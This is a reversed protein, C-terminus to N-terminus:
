EELARKLAELHGKGYKLDPELHNGEGWENWSKIFIIKHDEDKNKLNSVAKRVVEEFYQPKSDKLLIAKNGTRPSHDWNPGICPFVNNDKSEDNVMYKIAKKYKFVTPKKLVNRKLYEIVKRFLSLNHHIEVLNNDYIADFGLSLIKDKNRSSRDEGIFYFDFGKEKALKRWVSIFCSIEESDLPKYILFVKKKNICFYREDQLLPLIHYFYAKYDDQGLYKQEKLIKNNGQSDWLKNVWSHNAWALCFPIKIEKDEHMKWLPLDLITDGEGFWYNWYCFCSVDYKLAMDSQKRQNESIRLDYFGLDAPVHPQYHGKFLPKAKAVNTWETFGEGYWEDNEKIPHFQPLYFAITKIM